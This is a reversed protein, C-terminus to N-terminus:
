REKFWGFWRYECLYKYIMCKNQGMRLQEAKAQTFTNTRDYKWAVKSLSSRNFWNM